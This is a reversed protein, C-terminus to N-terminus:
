DFKRPKYLALELIKYFVAQYTPPLDQWLPNDLLSRPIRIHAPTKCSNESMTTEGNFFIPSEVVSFSYECTEQLPIKDKPGAIGTAPDKENISENQILSLLNRDILGKHFNKSTQCLNTINTTQLSM